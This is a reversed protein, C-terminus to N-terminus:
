DRGARAHEQMLRVAEAVAEAEEEASLHHARALERVSTVIELRDQKGWDAHRQRELWWSAAKWDGARYADRITDVADVEAEAEARTVENRFTAFREMWRWLQTRDIGAAEAAATRTNGRRLADLIRAEVQPTLKGPRAM